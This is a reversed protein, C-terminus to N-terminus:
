KSTMENLLILDEPTDIDVSLTDSFVINLPINLNHAANTHKQFSNIGFQFDLINPPATLLINTGQGHRDPIIGVGPSEAKIFLDNLAQRTLLPLDGHVVLMAEIGKSMLFTVGLNISSNLGNMQEEQLFVINKGTCYSEYSIDASIVLLGSLFVCNKLEQLTNQFFSLVMEQREKESLVTSLRTKAQALPKMPIVAWTEM